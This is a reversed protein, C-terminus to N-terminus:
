RPENARMDDGSGLIAFDTVFCAVDGLATRGLWTTHVGDAPRFFVLTLGTGPHGCRGHPREEALLGLLGDDFGLADFVEPSGFSGMGGDILYASDGGGAVLAPEWCAVPEDRIVVRAAAIEEFRKDGGSDYFDALILQVRYVGPEVRQGFASVERGPAYSWPECAVLRGTPLTLEGIGAVRVVAVLGPRVHGFDHARGEAFLRRFDPTGAIV